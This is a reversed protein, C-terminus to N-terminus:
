QIEFHGCWYRGWFWVPLLFPSQVWYVLSIFGPGMGIVGAISVCGFCGLVYKYYLNWHCGKSSDFGGRRPKSPWAGSDVPLPLVRLWSITLFDTLPRTESLGYGRGSFLIKKEVVIHPKTVFIETIFHLRIVSDFQYDRTVFGINYWKVLVAFKRM